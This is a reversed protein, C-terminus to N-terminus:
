SAVDHWGITKQLVPGITNLFHEWAVAMKYGLPTLQHYTVSGASFEWIKHTKILKAKRLRQLVVYLSGLDVSAKTEIFRTTREGYRHLTILTRLESPAMPLRHRPMPSSRKDKSKYQRLVRLIEKRAVPPPASIGNEWRSVTGPATRFLTAADRLSMGTRKLGSRIARAFASRDSRAATASRGDKRTSM